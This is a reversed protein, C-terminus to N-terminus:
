MEWRIKIMKQLGLSNDAYNGSNLEAVDFKARKQRYYEATRRPSLTQGHMPRTSMEYHGQSPTTRSPFPSCSPLDKTVAYGSKLTLLM